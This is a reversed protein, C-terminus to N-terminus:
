MWMANKEVRVLVVGLGVSGRREVCVNMKEDLVLTMAFFPVDMDRGMRIGKGCSKVHGTVM